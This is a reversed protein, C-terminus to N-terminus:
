KVLVGKSDFFLADSVEMEFEAFGLGDLTPPWPEIDGSQGDVAKIVGGDNIANFWHGSGSYKDFGVIASSGPGLETLRDNVQQMTAPESEQGAWEPMCANPEGRKTRDILTAAVSPDGSWTAQVARACEGCNNHGNGPNIDNIWAEPSQHPRDVALESADQEKFVDPHLKSVDPRGAMDKPVDQSTGAPTGEGPLTSDGPLDGTGARPDPSEESAQATEYPGVQAPEAEGPEPGIDTAFSPEPEGPESGAQDALEATGTPTAEDATELNDAEAPGAEGPDTEVPDAAAADAEVPDAAGPEGAAAEDTSQPDPEAPEAQDPEPEAQSVQDLQASEGEGPEGEGPEVDVSDSEGPDREAVEAHSGDDTENLGGTGSESRDDGGPPRDDEPPGSEGAEPVSSEGAIETGGGSSTEPYDSDGMESM